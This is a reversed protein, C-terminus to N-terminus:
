VPPLHGGAQGSPSCGAEEAAQGSPPAGSGNAPDAPWNASSRAQSDKKHLCPWSFSEDPLPPLLADAIRFIAGANPGFSALCIGSGEQEGFARIQLETDLLEEGVWLGNADQSAGWGARAFIGYRSL